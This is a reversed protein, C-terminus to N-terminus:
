SVLRAVAVIAIGAAAITVLGALLAGAIAAWRLPGHRRGADLAFLLAAVAVVLMLLDGVAGSPAWVVTLMAVVGAGLAALHRVQEGAAGQDDTM